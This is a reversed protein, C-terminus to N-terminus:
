FAFTSFGAGVGTEYITEPKTFKTLFYMLIIHEGEVLIM